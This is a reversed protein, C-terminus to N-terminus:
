DMDMLDNFCRKAYATMEHGTSELIEIKRGLDYAIRIKLTNVVEASFESEADMLFNVADDIENGVLSGSANKAFKRFADYYEKAFIGDIPSHEIDKIEEMFANFANIADM